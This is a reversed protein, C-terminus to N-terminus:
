EKVGRWYWQSRTALHYSGEHSKPMTGGDEGGRKDGAHDVGDSASSGEQGKGREDPDSERRDGGVGGAGDGDPGSSEAAHPAVALVDAVTFPAQQQEDNGAEGAAHEAGPKQAERGRGQEGGEDGVEDEERGDQEHHLLGDLAPEAEVLGALGVFCSAPQCSGHDELEEDGEVAAVEAGADADQHEGGEADDSEM